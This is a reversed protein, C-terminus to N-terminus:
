GIVIYHVNKLNFQWQPSSTNYCKFVNGSIECPSFYTSQSSGTQSGSRFYNIGLSGYCAFGCGLYTGDNENSLIIAKIDFPAIITTPNDKGYTGTGFYSGTTIRIKDGLQGMYEITTNAPIAAYGTVTQYQSLYTYTSTSKYIFSASSPIFYIKGASFPGFSNVPSFYNGVLTENAASVGASGAFDGRSSTGVSGSLSVVGDDSVSISSSYRIKTNFDNSQGFEFEGNQIAGLTYGAPSGDSGEQYANRNPSVPYDVQDNQTRKWVHLDGTHALANFM